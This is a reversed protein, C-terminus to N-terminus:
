KGSEYCSEESLVFDMRQDFEGVPVTEAMLAERCLAAKICHTKELYRDYYGGGHGLRRGERDCSICPIWAFDIEDPDIWREPDEEPELIGYAGTHLEDLSRIEYVEMEGKAICRPVGLRKGEKLLQKLLPMTDIEKGTSVYCFVCSANQFDQLELAKTIIKEDSELRNEDKLLSLKEKVEKRLQKKREKIIEEKM